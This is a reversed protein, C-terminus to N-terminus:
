ARCDAGPLVSPGFEEALLDMLIIDHYAGAYFHAMRLRGADKFGVKRYSAAARLNYDYTKLRISRLNLINFGYDCLLRLAESGYGEGRRASEGLFIGVEASRHVADIEFLGCNGLLEDSEKEIIAYSQLKSLNGLAEREGQLSVQASALTLFRTTSLDNLWATYREADELSIPSLYIREGVIKPFYKM